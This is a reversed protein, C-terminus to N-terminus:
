FTYNRLTDLQSNIQSAVEVSIVKELGEPTNFVDDLKILLELGKTTISIEVQRRDEPCLKRDILDKLRLKEVLRSVNSSKDLMRETIIQVSAPKGKQGRLIRLINYQEPSIGFPKLVKLHQARIWGATFMLNIFLKQHESAFKKQKIEEEIRM